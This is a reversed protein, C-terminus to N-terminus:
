DQAIELAKHLADATVANADPDSGTYGLMIRSVILEATPCM